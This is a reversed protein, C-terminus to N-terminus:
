SLFKRMEQLFNNAIIEGKYAVLLDKPINQLDVLSLLLLLERFEKNSSIIKQVSLKVINNRTKTYESINALTSKQSDTFDKDDTKIHKLYTSYAMGTNKIYHAAQSIDSPYPPLENLFRELEHENELEMDKINLIKKFLGTKEDKSLEPIQLLHYNNLLSNDIINSDTTTIIIKGNGWAKSDRPLYNKIDRLNKVNDYILIWNSHKSVKNQLFAHLMKKKVSNDAQKQIKYFDKKEPENTSLAYALNELSVLTTKATKANIEWVISANQKYAYQRALITKGSGGIGVLIINSIGDSKSLLNEIKDAILPRLLYHDDHLIPVEKATVRAPSGNYLVGSNYKFIIYVLTIILLIIGSILIKGVMTRKNNALLSHINEQSTSVTNSNLIIEKINQSEINFEDIIKNVQEQKMIQQLLYLLNTTYEAYDTFDIHGSKLGDQTDVAKNFLLYIDKDSTSDSLETNGIQVYITVVDNEKQDEVIEIGASNLDDKIQKVLELYENNQAQIIFCCKYNRSDSLKRITQLTNLYSAQTLLRSYWDSLHQIKGSSELFDIIQDRSRGTLKMKINSIHSEVTRPSIDLIEAIKKEGRNYRLCSLVDIERLTFNINSITKLHDEYIIKM